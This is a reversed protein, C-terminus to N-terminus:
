KRLSAVDFLDRYEIEEGDASFGKIIVEFIGTCDSTYFSASVARKSDTKILPNWYLLPWYAPINRPIKAIEPVQYFSNPMLSEIKLKAISSQWQITEIESSASAIDLIGPITLNGLLRANPISVISRIKKSDLYMIQRVHELLIGDLFIYPFSFVGQNVDIISGVFDNHKERIKYYTLLERSIERFDQLYQYEAPIVVEAAETYLEPRWCAVVEDNTKEERYIQNYSRQIDLYKKNTELFSKIDGHIHLPLHGIIGDFYKPMIEISNKNEGDVKIMANKGFYYPNLFFRFEGNNNTETFQLNAISDECSLFVRTHAVYANNQDKILGELIVGSREPLYYCSHSSLDKTNLRTESISVPAAMRVSVSLLANSIYEPLQIDLKVQERQSFVKKNLKVQLDFNQKILDKQFTTDSKQSASEPIKALVDSDFKNVIMINNIAFAGPGFNRMNNTYSVLQYLGTTLTDALYFSGFAAKNTIKLCGTFIRNQHDNSLTLYLYDSVHEGQDSVKISFYVWDGAIYVDRDTTITVQEPQLGATASLPVIVSLVTLIFAYIKKAM